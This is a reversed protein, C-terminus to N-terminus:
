DIGDVVKVGLRALLSRVVALQDPPVMALARDGAPFPQLVHRLDPHQRLEALTERDRFEVLTYTGVAASGYYGGWAKVQEVLSAPLRGRHLRGLEDLIAQVKKKSGGARRVSSESLRWAQVSGPGSDEFSTGGDVEDSFRALRGRLHLSPVAHIPQICGDKQVIVSKNAAEPNAGSVAPFIGELQLAEVVRQQQNSKVLAVATGVSRALSNGIPEVARLRELLSEDAAQLLTVGRRFVIREHHAGWEALSRRINQPLENPTAMELFRQVEAVSFEMQQAAYVSERSLHYEFARRDAKQREAFLDLQALMHLPVPGIALIQFNPQVIIQGPADPPPMAEDHLVARGLATLRFAHWETDGVPTTNYGLEVLGLQFLFGAMMEAVFAQELRDIEALAEAPNHYYHSGYYSYGRANEIRSRAAFLFDANRDQLWLLLDEAEIWNAAPMDALATLVLLCAQRYQPGYQAAKDSSLQFPQVLTRWVDLCMKVQEAAPKQWFDPIARGNEGTVRVEGQQPQVLNLGQLMQRLLYLRTTQDEQRADDLTPDPNLLVENLSKLGRKGVFGAQIMPAPSRRVADWYLYLDRLFLHPDGHETHAPQWDAVGVPLPEPEPLHRHVFPPIFLTDGPHFQLKHPTGGTTNGAGQSFVLGHRTLRAIVDEVIPSRPNDPTGVHNVLRGYMSPGRHYYWRETKKPEPPPPAEQALGARVLERCFLRTSAEGNRLLLRNLVARETETLKEYSEHIREPRFYDQKMVRLLEAKRLKKGTTGPLKATRAMEWLTNSNYSDLLNNIDTSM